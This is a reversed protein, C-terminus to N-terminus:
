CRREGVMSTGHGAAEADCPDVSAQARYHVVAALHAPTTIAVQTADFYSLTRSLLARLEGEQPAVLWRLPGQGAVPVRGAALAQGLDIGPEIEPWDETFPLRLHQALDRYYVSADVYGRAILTRAACVRERRAAQSVAILIDRDVRGVLFALEPPLACRAQISAPEPRRLAPFAHRTQFGM